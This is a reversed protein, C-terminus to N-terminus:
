TLPLNVEIKTGKGPSSHVKLSGGLLKARENLGTLGFHGPLIQAPDFGIGDDEIVLVVREPLVTLRVSALRARAHRVVNALAEQAMRFLGVEIRVPLPQNAGTSFFLVQIGEKSRISGALAELAEALRRGELPAARLDLVSRRAEELNARALSLAQQIARQLRQPEAGNELLVDATELQL